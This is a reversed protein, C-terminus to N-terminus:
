VQFAEPPPLADLLTQLRDDSYLAFFHEREEAIRWQPEYREALSVQKEAESLLEPCHSLIKENVKRIKRFVERRRAHNRPEERRLRESERVLEDRRHVLPQNRAAEPLHRQPNWRVDRLRRRAEVLRPVARPPRPLDLHLTASVCAMAPPEIGYYRRIIEDTIQDYEAGGLGHIFLDALFLRAWLTLMLARPRVVWRTLPGTSALLPPYKEPYPPEAALRKRGATLVTREGDRRVFCRHREQSADQVPDGRLVIEYAWLPLEWRDRGRELDPMPVSSSRIGRKRRYDHLAENYVRSFREADKWHGGLVGFWTDAPRITEASTERVGTPNCASVCLDSLKVGFRDEIRRRAAIQQDVWDGGHCSARLGALYHPLQSHEFREGMAARLRREIEDIREPSLRPMNEFIIRREAPNLRVTEFTIGDERVVPVLPDTGGAQDVRTTTFDGHGGLRGFLPCRKRLGGGDGREGEKRPTRVIRYSPAVVDSDVVLNVAEGGLAEALRSAVVNKAWVGPHIPGPQHGTVILLKDENGEGLVDRRVRRRLECFRTDGVPFDLGALRRHNELAARAMEAPEPVVLVEGDRSPITLRAPDLMAPIKLPM